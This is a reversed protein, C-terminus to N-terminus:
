QNCEPSDARKMKNIIATTSIGSKYSLSQVIGHYSEVIDAGVIECLNWDGGKVLINPKICKIVNYPTDEEFIIIYDVCHLGSLVIARDEQSNIPREKGKLRKVSKDSNLGIILVDGLAKAEELFQVHGAHLIDFCGNTFVIKESIFDEKITEWDSTTILKNM